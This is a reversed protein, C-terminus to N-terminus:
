FMNKNRRKNKKRWLNKSRQENGRKDVLMKLSIGWRGDAKAKPIFIAYVAVLALAMAKISDM